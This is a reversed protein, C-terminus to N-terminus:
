AEDFRSFHAHVMEWADGVNRYICTGRAKLQEDNPLAAVYLMTFVGVDGYVQIKPNVMEYKHPPILGKWSALLAQYAQIGDVRDGAPNNNFFTIDDSASKGYGVTDGQSWYDMDIRVQKLISEEKQKHEM